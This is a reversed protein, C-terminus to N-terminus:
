GKIPKDPGYSTLRTRDPDVSGDGLICVEVGTGPQVDHQGTAKTYDAALDQAAYVSDPAKHGLRNVTATLDEGSEVSGTVCPGPGYLKDYATVAGLTLLSSGIAAATSLMVVGRTTWRIEPKSKNM